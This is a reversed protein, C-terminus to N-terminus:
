KTTSYKLQLLASSFKRLNEQQKEGKKLGDQISKFKKKLCSQIDKEKRKL